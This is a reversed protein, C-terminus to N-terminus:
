DLFFSTSSTSSVCSVDDLDGEVGCFNSITKDCDVIIIEGFGLLVLVLALIRSLDVFKALFGRFLEIVPSDVKYDGYTATTIDRGADEPVNM